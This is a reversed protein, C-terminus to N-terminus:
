RGSSGRIVDSVLTDLRRRGVDSVDGNDEARSFVASGLDLGGASLVAAPDPPLEGDLFSADILVVVPGGLSEGLVRDAITRRSGTEHTVIRYRELWIGPEDGALSERRERYDAVPLIHQVERAVGGELALWLVNRPDVHAAHAEHLDFARVPFDTAERPVAGEVPVFHLFRSLSILTAGRAGSTELAALLEGSTRAV